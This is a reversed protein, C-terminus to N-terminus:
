MRLCHSAVDWPGAESAAQMLELSARDLRYSGSASKWAVARDDLATIPMTVPTVTNTLRVIKAPIDIEYLTEAAVMVMPCRLALVEAMAAPSALFTTSLMLVRLM